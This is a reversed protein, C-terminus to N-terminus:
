LLLLHNAPFEAFVQCLKSALRVAKLASQLEMEYTNAAKTTGESM